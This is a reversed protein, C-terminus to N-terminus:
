HSQHYDIAAGVQQVLDDEFDDDANKLAISWHDRDVMDRTMTFILKNNQWVAYDVINDEKCCPHINANQIIGNHMFQVDFPTTDM